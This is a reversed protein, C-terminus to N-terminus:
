AASAIVPSYSTIATQSASSTFAIPASITSRIWFISPTKLVTVQRATLYGSLSAAGPGGGPSGGARASARRWAKSGGRLRLDAAVMDARAQFRLRRCPADPVAHRCGGPEALLAPRAPCGARPDARGGARRRCAPSPHPGRRGDAHGAKPVARVLQLCLR